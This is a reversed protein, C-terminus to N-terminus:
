SVVYGGKGGVFITKKGSSSAIASQTIDDVLPKLSFLRSAAGRRNSYPSSSLTSVSASASSSKKSQVKPSFFRRDISFAAADKLLFSCQAIALALIITKYMIIRIEMTIM